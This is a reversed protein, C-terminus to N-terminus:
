SRDREKIQAGGYCRAAIKEQEEALDVFCPHNDFLDRVEGLRREAENEQTVVGDAFAPSLYDSRREFLRRRRHSLGFNQFYQLISDRLGRAHVPNTSGDDHCIEVILAESPPLIYFQEPRLKFLLHESFVDDIPAFNKLHLPALAAHSVYLPGCVLGHTRLGEPTRFMIRNPIASTEADGPRYINDLTRRSLNSAAADMLAQRPVALVGNHHFAAVRDIVPQALANLGDQFVAFPLDTLYRALAALAGDSHIVDPYLFLLDAGEREARLITSHSGFGFVMYPRKNAYRAVTEPFVYIRVECFDALRRLADSERLRELDAPMTHLELAVSAQAALAPMNGPALLAGISAQEMLDLYRAGWCVMSAYIRRPGTAPKGFVLAPRTQPDTAFAHLTPFIQFEPKFPALRAALTLAQEIAGMSWAVGFRRELDEPQDAPFRSILDIAAPVDAHLISRLAFCINEAVWISEPQRQFMERLDSLSQRYGMRPLCHYIRTVLWEDSLDASPGREILARSADTLAQDTAASDGLGNLRLRAARRRLDLDVWTAASSTQDQARECLDACLAFDGLDFLRRSLESLDPAAGELAVILALRLLDDTPEADISSPTGILQQKIWDGDSRVAPADPAIARAALHFALAAELDGAELAKRVDDRRAQARSSAESEPLARREGAGFLFLLDDFRLASPHDNAAIAQQCRQHLLGSLAAVNPGSVGARDFLRAAQFYAISRVIRGDQALAVGRNALLASLGSM